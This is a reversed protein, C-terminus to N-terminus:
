LLTAKPEKRSFWGLLGLGAVFLPLAAPLPTAIPPTFGIELTPAPPVAGCDLACVTQSAWFLSVAETPVIFSTGSASYQYNGLRDTLAWANGQHQIVHNDAFTTYFTITIAEGYWFNGFPEHNTFTPVTFSLSVGFPQGGTQILGGYPSYTAAQAPTHLALALLSLSILIKMIEEQM